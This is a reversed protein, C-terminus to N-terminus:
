KDKVPSMNDYITPQQSCTGNFNALLMQEYIAELSIKGFMISIM